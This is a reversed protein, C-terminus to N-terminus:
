RNKNPIFYIQRRRIICRTKKKSRIKKIDAGLVVVIINFGDRNVSTVLCRGAKSTYGTKVGDVGNLYGLM